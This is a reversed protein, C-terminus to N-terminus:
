ISKPFCYTLALRCEDLRQVNKFTNKTTDPKSYNATSHRNKTLHMTWHYTNRKLTIREPIWRTPTIDDTNPAPATTISLDALRETNSNHAVRQEPEKPTEWGSQSITTDERPTKSTDADNVYYLLPVSDHHPYPDFVQLLPERSLLASNCSCFLLVVAPMSFLHARFHLPPM